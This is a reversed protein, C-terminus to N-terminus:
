KSYWYTINVNLVTKRLVYTRTNRYIQNCIMVKLKNNNSLIHKYYNNLSIKSNANSKIIECFVCYERGSMDYVFVRVLSSTVIITFRVSSWVSTSYSSVCNYWYYTITNFNSLVFQNSVEINRDIWIFEIFSKFILLYPIDMLNRVCSCLRYNYEIADAPIITLPFAFYKGKNKKQRM